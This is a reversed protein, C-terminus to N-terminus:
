EYYIERLITPLSRDIKILWLDYSRFEKEEYLPRENCYKFDFAILQNGNYSMNSLSGNLKNANHEKLFYYLDKVEDVSPYKKTILCSPEYYKQVIEQKEIDFSVLEPIFKSGNLKTLWKIERQFAETIEEDTQNYPNINGSV